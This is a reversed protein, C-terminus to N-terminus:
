SLNVFDISEGYGTYKIELSAAFPEFIEYFKSYTYNEFIADANAAMYAADKECRKIIHFGYASEVVVSYEGPALTVATDWVVDLADYKMTYYGHEPPLDSANYDSYEAMLAEFDGGKALLGLVDEARERAIEKTEATNYQIFIEKLCLIEDSAFAAERAADDVAIEGKDIMKELVPYALYSEQTLADFLEHTLYQEELAILYTEDDGMSARFDAVTAEAPDAMEETLKARYKEALLLLAHRESINAETLSKLEAVKAADLAADAGYLDRKNNLYFYRYEQREVKEGGVTLVVKRDEASSTLGAGATGSCAATMLTLAALAAAALSKLKM